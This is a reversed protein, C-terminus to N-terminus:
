VNEISVKKSLSCIIRRPIGSLSTLLVVKGGWLTQVYKLTETAYSLNLERGDEVHELILTNEAQIVEKVQVIPMGGMGVENALTNRIQKYGESDAVESIIYYREEEQFQCLNAELAIELTLYKRIFSADREQERIPLLKKFDEDNQKYLNEWIKFGLYYPNLNGPTQCVVGNHVKYFEFAMEQPLNLQKLINYHCFTAWGENIIKTEIQPYFYQSEEGVIQLIDRQWEELQGFRGLFELLNTYPYEVKEGEVLPTKRFGQCQYRISHAADLIQEVAEYGISPDHIYSRIRDAHNKFKEVTLKANTFDKFLRNNKFFDNHGYVHAITLIQLLLTNDKMLYAICPDSNIVMEYPLGTLNYKYATKLRDYTKGYSWHSYHSPMGVYAEYCLMDEFSIIEFEQTYYDLGMERAIEEIRENYRELDKVTYNM